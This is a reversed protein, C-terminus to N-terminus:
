RSQGVSALGQAVIRAVIAPGVGGVRGALDEVSSFPQAARLKIIQKARAPGIHSITQLSEQDATNIDVHEAQAASRRLLRSTVV